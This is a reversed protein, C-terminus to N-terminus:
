QALRARCIDREYPTFLDLWEPENLIISEVALDLKGTKQLDLFITTPIDKYIISKVFGLDLNKNTGSPVKPDKLREEFKIELDSKQRTSM